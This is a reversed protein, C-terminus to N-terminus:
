QVLWLFRVGYNCPRTDCNPSPKKDLFTSTVIVNQSTNSNDPNQCSNNIINSNLTFTNTVSGNNTLIMSYYTGNQPASRVNRDKEVNLTANCQNSQSYSITVNFLIIFFTLKLIMKRKFNGEKKFTKKPKM